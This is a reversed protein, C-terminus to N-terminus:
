FISAPVLWVAGADKGGDDDNPGAVLVDDLGDADLDGAFDVFWSEDDGSGRLFIDSDTLDHSGSVPGRFIFIDGDGGGYGGIAFDDFGDGDTDGLGAIPLGGLGGGILGALEADAAALDFDGSVPGLVEKGVVNTALLDAYGDGNVDGAVAAYTGGVNTAEKVLTADADTPAVLGSPPGLFLYASESFSGLVLDDLGDGNVDGGRSVHRGIGELNAWVMFGADELYVEGSVPGTM